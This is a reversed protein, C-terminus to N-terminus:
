RFHLVYDILATVDGISIDGNNDMDAADFYIDDETGLIYDIMLTIDGIDILGDDNVDGRLAYDGSTNQLKNDMWQFRESIFRRVNQVEAEYSGWLVPNQQVYTNMIDWRMFNLRQSQQIVTELSDLYAIM